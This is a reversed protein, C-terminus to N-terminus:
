ERKRDEPAFLSVVTDVYGQDDDPNSQGELGNELRKQEMLWEGMDVTEPQPTQQPKNIEVAKVYWTQWAASWSEFQSGLKQHHARFKLREAELDIDPRKKRQWYATALRDCEADPIHDPLPTLVVPVSKKRSPKKRARTVGRDTKCQSESVHHPLTPSQTVNSHSHNHNTEPQKQKAKGNAKPRGGQKGAKRRAEVRANAKELERRIRENQLGLDTKLFHTELVWWIHGIRKPSVRGIRALKGRDDPLAGHVWQHMLWLIYAGTEEATMEATDGIFDKIWLPMWPTSSVVFEVTRGAESEAGTESEAGRIQGARGAQHPELIRGHRECRSLGDSM